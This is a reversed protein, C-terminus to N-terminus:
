TDRARVAKEKREGKRESMTVDSILANFSFPLLRSCWLYKSDIIIINEEIFMAIKPFPRM